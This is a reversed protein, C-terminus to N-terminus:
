SPKLRAPLAGHCHQVHGHAPRLSSRHNKQRRAHPSPAPPDTTTHQCEPCLLRTTDPRHTHPLSTQGHLIGDGVGLM